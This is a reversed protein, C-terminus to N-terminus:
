ARMPASVRRILIALSVVTILLLSLAFYKIDQFDELGFVWRQVAGLTHHLSFLEEYRHGEFSQNTPFRISSVFGWAVFGVVWMAFWAFGAYRSERTLSSFCLALSTAPVIVTVSALLIRIPIDWTDMVVDVSPSLVIGLFYMFLAPLTTIGALFLWVTASKGLLYEFRGLPRSFYFLFARTEVDESILRPAILGILLVMAIGQPYRFYIQLIYTWAVHRINNLLEVPSETNAAAMEEQMEPFNRALGIIAQQWMEDGHAAREYLIFITGFLLLPMWAFFLIRRVWSSQWVRRAGTSAIVLWRSFEPTLQGNWKRYGLDHIPM